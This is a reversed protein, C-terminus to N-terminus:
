ALSQPPQALLDGVHCLRQAPQLAGGTGLQLVDASLHHEEWRQPGIQAFAWEAWILSHTVTCAALTMACLPDHQRDAALRGRVKALRRAESPPPPPLESGNKARQVRGALVALEFCARVNPLSETVFGHDWLHNCARALNHARSSLTFVTPTRRDSHTHSRCDDLAEWTAILDDITERHTAVSPDHCHGKVTVQQRVPAEDPWWASYLGPEGLLHGLREAHM